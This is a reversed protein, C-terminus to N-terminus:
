IQLTQGSCHVSRDEVLLVGEPRGLVGCVLVTM